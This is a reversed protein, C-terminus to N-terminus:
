HCTELFATETVYKTLTTSLEVQSLFLDRM